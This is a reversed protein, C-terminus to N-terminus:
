VLQETDATSGGPPDGAREEGDSAAPDHEGAGAEAGAHQGGDSAGSEPRGVPEAGEGEVAQVSGEPDTTPEDTAAESVDEVRRFKAGFYTSLVNGAKVADQASVRARHVGGVFRYGMCMRVENEAHEGPLIAEFNVYEIPQPM